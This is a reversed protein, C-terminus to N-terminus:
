TDRPAPLASGNSTLKRIAAAATARAPSAGSSSAPREDPPALARGSWSLLAAAEEYAHSELLDRVRSSSIERGDDSRVPSLIRVDFHEALLAADGARRAGFRFGEGVWLEIPELRRLEAIFREATRGAYARDFPAVIAHSVGLAAFRRLKDDLPTLVRANALVARPPPDFTYAVAPIAVAAAREAVTSLLTQHGRHVGDFAGITLVCATLELEDPRTIHIRKDPASM